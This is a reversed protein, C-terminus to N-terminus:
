MSSFFDACKYLIHICRDLQLLIIFTFLLPACAFYALSICVSQIEFLMQPTLMRVQVINVVETIGSRDMEYVGMDIVTIKDAATAACDALDDDHPMTISTPTAM